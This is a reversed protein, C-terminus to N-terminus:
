YGRRALQRLKKYRIKEWAVKKFKEIRKIDDEAEFFCNSVIAELEELQMEIELSKKENRKKIKGINNLIFKMKSRFAKLDKLMDSFTSNGEVILRASKRDCIM